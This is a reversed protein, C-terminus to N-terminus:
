KKDSDAEKNVKKAAPKKAKKVEKKPEDKVEVIEEKVEKITEEVEAVAEEVKEVEKAAKEVKVEPGWNEPKVFGKVTSKKLLTKRKAIRDMLRMGKRTLRNTTM